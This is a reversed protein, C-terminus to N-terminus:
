GCICFVKKLYKNAKFNPSGIGPLDWIKVNPMTPHEYMTREMTTETVGTPAAGEDDDRLGRIVNVFSSKGSGTRGTVAIHLVVNLLQDFTAKAKATARDLTSEGSEKVAELLAREQTSM